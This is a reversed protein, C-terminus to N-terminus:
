HTAFDNYPTKLATAAYVEFLHQILIDPVEVCKASMARVRMTAEAFAARFDETEMLAKRSGTPKYTAKVRGTAERALRFAFASSEPRGATHNSIRQRINRTRGTYLPMGDEFIVYVGPETPFSARDTIPRLERRTLEELLPPLKELLAVYEPLLGAM